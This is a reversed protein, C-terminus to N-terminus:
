KNFLLTIFLTISAEVRPPHLSQAKQVGFGVFQCAEQEKDAHHCNPLRVKDRNCPYNSADGEESSYLFPMKNTAFLGNM